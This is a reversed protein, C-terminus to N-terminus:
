ATFRLRQPLISVNKFPKLMGCFSPIAPFMTILFMAGRFMAMGRSCRLSVALLSTNMPSSVTNLCLSRFQADDFGYREGSGNLELIVACLRQNSLISVVGRLAPMEYGEVDIKMLLPVEKLCEEWTRVPVTVSAPWSQHDDIVHNM